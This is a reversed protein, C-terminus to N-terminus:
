YRQIKFRDQHWLKDWDLPNKKQTRLFEMLFASTLKACIFKLLKFCSMVYVHVAMMVVKLIYSRKRRSIIHMCVM